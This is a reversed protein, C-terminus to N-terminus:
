IGQEDRPSPLGYALRSTAVGFILTLLMNFMLLGFIVMLCALSWRIKLAQHLWAAAPGLVAALMLAILLPIIVSQALHLAVVGALLLLVNVGWRTTSSLSFNPIM